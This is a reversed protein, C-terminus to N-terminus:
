APKSETKSQASPATQFMVPRGPPVESHEDAAVPEQQQKKAADTLADRVMAIFKPRDAISPRFGRSYRRMSNDVASEFRDPPVSLYRSGYEGMNEVVHDVYPKLDDGDVMPSMEWQKTEDDTLPRDYVAVGNRAEDYHAAGQAPRDELAVFDKPASYASAPRNMMAYRYQRPKAPPPVAPQGSSIESMVDSVEDALDRRSDKIHGSLALRFHAPADRLVREVDPKRLKDVSDAAIKIMEGLQKQSPVQPTVRVPLRKGPDPKSAPSEAAKQSKEDNISDEIMNKLTREDPEYHPHKAYESILRMATSGSIKQMIKLKPYKEDLESISRAVLRADTYHQRYARAFAPDKTEQDLQWNRDNLFSLGTGYGSTMAGLRKVSRAPDLQAALHAIMHYDDEAPAVVPAVKVEPKQEDLADDFMDRTSAVADKGSYPNPGLSGPRTFLALQGPAAGGARLPKGSYGSTNVMKGARLYPGVYGKTFLISKTMDPNKASFNGNNGIASKIQSSDFAIYSDGSGENTNKYVVGDYGADIIAQRMMPDYKKRLTWNADIEKEIRKGDGKKVLGKAELQRAIGDAHFSGVDKLRLPNQLSLWVPIISMAGRGALRNKLYNAQDITGFHAGLDGKSTDFADFNSATAHYVVRTVASRKFWEKFEDTQPKRFTPSRTTFAAHRKDEHAAVVTGDARTYTKIHSKVFLVAKLMGPEKKTARVKAIFEDVPMAIIGGFFRPDDYHALYAAKADDMSAFDVFVKDEDFKDWDKRKMQRIIYVADAEHHQGCYVDVPDGDVGCTGRFEGYAYKFVTRWPKGTEDVGERTTGEPCEIAIKLGRWDRVPKSYNGAVAQAATPRGPVPFLIM